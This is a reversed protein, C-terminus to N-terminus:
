LFGALEEVFRLLLIAEYCNFRLVNVRVTGSKTNKPKARCMRIQPKATDIIEYDKYYKRLNM